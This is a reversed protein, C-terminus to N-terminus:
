GVKEEIERKRACVESYMGELRIAEAKGYRGRRAELMELHLIRHLLTIEPYSLRGFLARRRMSMAFFIAGLLCFTFCATGTTMAEEGQANSRCRPLM